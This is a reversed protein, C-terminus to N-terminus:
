GSAERFLLTSRAAKARGCRRPAGKVANRSPSGRIRAPSASGASRSSTRRARARRRGTIQPRPAWTILTPRAGTTISRMSRPKTVAIAVFPAPTTCSKSTATAPRVDSSTSAPSPVPAKPMARSVPSSTFRAITSPSRSPRAEPRRHAAVERGAPGARTVESALRSAAAQRSPRGAVTCTAIPVSMTWM